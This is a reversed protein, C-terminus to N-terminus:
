FENYKDELTMHVVGFLGEERFPGPSEINGNSDVFSDWELSSFIM